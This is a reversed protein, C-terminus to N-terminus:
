SAGSAYPSTPLAASTQQSTATWTGAGTTDLNFVKLTVVSTGSSSDIDRIHLFIQTDAERSVVVGAFDLSGAQIVRRLEFAVRGAGATGSPAWALLFIVVNGDSGITYGWFFVAGEAVGLIMTYSCNLTRNVHARITPFIKSKGTATAYWLTTYCGDEDMTGTAVFTNMLIGGNNFVHSLQTIQVARLGRMLCSRLSHTKLQAMAISAHAALQQQFSPLSDIRRWGHKPFIRAAPLM